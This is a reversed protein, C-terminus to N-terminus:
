RLLKGIVIGLCVAGLVATLPNERILGEVDCCSSSTPMAFQALDGNDVWLSAKPGTTAADPQSTSESSM